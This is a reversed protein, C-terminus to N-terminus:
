RILILLCKDHYRDVKHFDLYQKVNGRVFKKQKEYILPNLNLSLAYMKLTLTRMCSLFYVKYLRIVTLLVKKLM